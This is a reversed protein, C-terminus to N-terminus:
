GQDVCWCPQITDHHGVGQALLPPQLCGAATCSVGVKAQVSLCMCLTASQSDLWMLQAPYKVVDIRVVDLISFPM